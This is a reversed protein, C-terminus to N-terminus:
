FILWGLPKTITETRVPPVGGGMYLDTGIRIIKKVCPNLIKFGQM